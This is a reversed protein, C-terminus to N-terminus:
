FNSWGDGGRFGPDPSRGLEALNRFEPDLGTWVKHNFYFLYTKLKETINKSGVLFDGFPSKCHFLNVFQIKRTLRNVHSQIHVLFAPSHTNKRYLALIFLKGLRGGRVFQDLVQFPVKGPSGLKQFKGPL